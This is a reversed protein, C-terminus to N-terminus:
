MRGWGPIPALLFLSPRSGGVVACRTTQWPIGSLLLRATRGIMVDNGLTIPAQALITANFNIFVREGCRLNTGFEINIPAHIMTPGSEPHIMEAIIEWAKDPDTNGLDNLQKALEFGRSHETATGPRGPIHWQGSVMAEWTGYKDLHDYESM